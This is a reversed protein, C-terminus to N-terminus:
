KEVRLSQQQVQIATKISTNESEFQIGHIPKADKYDFGTALVIYNEDVIINNSVDIGVWGLNDVYVETWAHTAEQDERDDMKLYGSVYRAPFNLERMCSILIHSFDQCVGTKLLFAEEATTGIETTGISYTLFNKLSKAVGYILDLDPMTKASFQKCFEKINRGPKALYTHRKFLWNPIESVDNIVGITKRIEVVGEAMISILTIDKEFTLLCCFNGHHDLYETEKKAGKLIIDWSIVRQRENEKPTLRLRQIGYLPPKSFQFEVLNKIAVQRM